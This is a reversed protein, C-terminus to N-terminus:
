PLSPHSSNTGTLQRYGLLLHFLHQPVRLSSMGFLPPVHFRVIQFKHQKQHLYCLMALMAPLCLLLDATV